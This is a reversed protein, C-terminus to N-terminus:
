SAKSTIDDACYDLLLLWGRLTESLLSLPWYAPLVAGCPCPKLKERGVASGMAETKVSLMSDRLSGDIRGSVWGIIGRAEMAASDFLVPFIRVKRGSLPSRWPM